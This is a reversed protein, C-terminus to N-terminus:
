VSFKASRKELFASTGESAETGAFCAGFAYAEAALGTDLPTQLSARTLRKTEALAIPASKLIGKIVLNVESDLQEKEVVRSVLGLAAAEEGTLTRNACLMDLAVPLGVRRALRQTGGFGPILGLGVEPQAFKARKAAVVIDCAMALECGGGLAFGQVKAITIQPMKELAMTMAQGARAFRLAQQATMQNMSKIDAGAVFAKDGAGALVVVRAKSQSLFDIAKHLESIIAENLANLSDPREITLSAVGQDDITLSINEFKPASM